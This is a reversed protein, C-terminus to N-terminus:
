EDYDRVLTREREWRGLDELNDGGVWDVGGVKVVEWMRRRVAGPVRAVGWWRSKIGRKRAEYTTERIWGEMTVWPPIALALHYILPLKASAMPALDSTWHTTTAPGASSAPIDSRRAPWAARTDPGDGKCVLARIM